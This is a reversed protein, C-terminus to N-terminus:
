SEKVCGRRSGFLNSAKKKFSFGNKLSNEKVDKGGFFFFFLMQLFLGRRLRVKQREKGRLEGCGPTSVLCQERVASPRSGSGAGRGVRVAGCRGAGGRRGLARSRSGPEAVAASGWPPLAAAERAGPRRRPPSCASSKCTTARGRPSGGSEAPSGREGGGAGGGLGASVGWVCM